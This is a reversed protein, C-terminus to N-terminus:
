STAAELSIPSQGAQASLLQRRLLDRSAQISEKSALQRVGMCMWAGTANAKGASTADGVAALAQRPDKQFLARFEDDSGLKDLLADVTSESLKM